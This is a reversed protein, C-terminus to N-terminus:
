EVYHVFLSTGVTNAHPFLMLRAHKRRWASAGELDTVAPESIWGERRLNENIYTSLDQPQLAISYVYQAVTQSKISIDQGFQKRAHSPLWGFRVDTGATAPSLRRADVYLASVYGKAGAATPEIEALWHWDPEMGSLVIKNKATLVRQFIDAHNALSQAAEIAPGSSLFTKVYVPVGSLQMAQLREWQLPKAELADLRARVAHAAQAFSAGCCVVVCLIVLFSTMIACTQPRRVGKRRSVGSVATHIVM